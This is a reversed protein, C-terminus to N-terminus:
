VYYEYSEFLANLVMEEVVDDVIKEGFRVLQNLINTVSEWFFEM